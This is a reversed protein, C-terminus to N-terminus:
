VGEAVSVFAHLRQSGACENSYIWLGVHNGAGGSVMALVSEPAARDLASNTPVELPFWNRAPCPLPSAGEIPFPRPLAM